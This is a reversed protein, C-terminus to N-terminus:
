GASSTTWRRAPSAASSPTARDGPLSRPLGLDAPRQRLADERLPPGALPRRDFLPRLRRRPPRLHRGPGDQRPYAPRRAAGPRRRDSRPAALLVKLDMPHPFKPARGFGGHLPDFNRMSPEPRRTSCSSTSRAPARPFRRRVSAAARDDRGGVRHDRGATGALGSARELARPSVRGHGALRDAPFLHRRLVAQARADPVGVDALRRARDDGARGVHLDPRPRPAGRPRGQHQRLAREDPGRDGPERLERAGDRPVLPLGFLRDVPLDAQERGQGEGAGGPGLSVLRGPQAAHQLLYPSTEGALRNTKHEPRVHIRVSSSTMLTSSELIVLVYDHFEAATGESSCYRGPRPAFSPKGFLAERM